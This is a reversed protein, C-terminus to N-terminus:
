ELICKFYKQDLKATVFVILYFNHKENKLALDWFITFVFVIWKVPMANERERRFLCYVTGLLNSNTSRETMKQTYKWTWTGYYLIASLNQAWVRCCSGWTSPWSFYSLQKLSGLLKTLLRAPAAALASRQPLLWHKFLFKSPWNFFPGIHVVTLM